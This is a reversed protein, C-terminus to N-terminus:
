PRPMLVVRFGTEQDRHSGAEAAERGHAARDRELPRNWSGGRIVRLRNGADEPRGSGLEIRERRLIEETYDDRCWERVNGLLDALGLPSRDDERSGVPAPGDPLTRLPPLALDLGAVLASWEEDSPLRYVHGPPLFGLGRETITLLDCFKAAETGSVHTVPLDPEPRGGPPATGAVAEYVSRSTEVSAAWGGFAPIWVMRIDQGNTFAEGPRPEPDYQLEVDLEARGGPRLFLDVTKRSHREKQIRYFVKGPGQGPLELPTTGLLRPRPSVSWVEAGDPRSTLKV